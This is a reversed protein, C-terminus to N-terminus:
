SRKCKRFNEIELNSINSKPQFNSQDFNLEILKLLTKEYNFLNKLKQNTSDGVSLELLAGTLMLRQQASRVSLIASKRLKWQFNLKQNFDWLEAASISKELCNVPKQPKTNQEEQKQNNDSNESKLNNEKSCFSLFM